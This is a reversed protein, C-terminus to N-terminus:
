EVQEELLEFRTFLGSFPFGHAAHEREYWGVGLGVELRGGSIHDVTAAMRALLSPHRFTVPSVMTGFRIRETVAAVAALSAWADHADCSSSHVITSYHDSRYM